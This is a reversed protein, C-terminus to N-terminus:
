SATRSTLLHQWRPKPTTGDWNGSLPRSMDSCMRRNATDTSVASKSPDSDMATPKLPGIPQQPAVAEALIAQYM